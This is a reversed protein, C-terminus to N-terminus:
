RELLGQEALSAYREGAVIIHDVVPISIPTLASRIRRTVDLDPGSAALSGGPHNHSLIVSNAKHRLAAEVILRPYVPAENLTGEHVLAAHNVRNQADLCIVYFVEYPRGAFLSVAFEGARASTGLIPREGWRQKLYRRTLPGAMTLLIATALSLGCRREIDRPDAEFLGSLSGYEQLMAHAVPNTDRKPMCYFLLLELVEHDKFADLGESLYRDRVRQRHGVHLQANELTFSMSLSLPEETNM